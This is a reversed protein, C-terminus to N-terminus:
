RRLATPRRRPGRVRSWVTDAGIGVWPSWTAFMAWGFRGEAIAWTSAIVLLLGASVGLISRTIPDRAARALGAGALVFLVSMQVAIIRNVPAPYHARVQTLEALVREGGLRLVAGPHEIAYRVVATNRLDTADAPPPMPIRVFDPDVWIVLGEYTRAALTNEDGGPSQFAPSLVAIAGLVIAAGLFSVLRARRFTSVVVASAGLAAGIGNPRVVISLLALGVAAPRARPQEVARALVVVLIVMLPIFVPEVFITRSWQAISPNLTLAAASLIAARRGWRHDVYRLLLLAALGLLLVQVALLGWGGLGLAM